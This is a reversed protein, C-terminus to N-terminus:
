EQSWTIEFMPMLTNFALSSGIGLMTLCTDSPITSPGVIGGTVLNTGNLANGANTVILALPKYLTVGFNGAGTQATGITVSEVSRVGTDGEQLAAPVSYYIRPVGGTTYNINVERTTRGSTGSQNTYSATVVFTNSSWGTASYVEYCLIVGEGSTHRTLAATPLNTTQASTTNGALGGQHSLRDCLLYYAIGERNTTMVNIINVGASGSLPVFKLMSGPTTVTPAEATSPIAGVNDPTALAGDNGISTTLVPWGTQFASLSGILQNANDATYYRQPARDLLRAQFTALDAIAM